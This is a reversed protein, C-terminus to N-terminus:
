CMTSDNDDCDDNNDVYGAPVSQAMTPTARLGKTTKVIQVLDSSYISDNSGVMVCDNDITDRSRSRNSSMMQHTM